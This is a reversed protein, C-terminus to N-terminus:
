CRREHGLGGLLQVRSGGASQPHRGYLLPVREREVALHSRCQHNMARGARTGCSMPLTAAIQSSTRGGSGSPDPAGVEIRDAARELVLHTVDPSIPSVNSTM